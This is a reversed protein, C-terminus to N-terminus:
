FYFSYSVGLSNQYMAIEGRSGIYTPGRQIYEFAHVYSVNVDSNPGLNYSAGLTLHHRTTAPAIMSFLVAGTEEPIPSDAFNWGARFAWKKNYQYNIGLKYITQNQWGFGLGKDNGLAYTDRDGNPFASGGGQTVPGPNSVAAVESYFVRTIDLAIDTKKNIRYALGIGINPPTDFDGQEAFLDTYKNFKSNYVKSTVVAGISLKKRFFKGYYGLRVGAGYAWDNGRAPLPKQDKTFQAFQDLGFARFTQVGIVLSAGVTQNSAIKYAITPNMQMVMM